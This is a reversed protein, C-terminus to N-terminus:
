CRTSKTQHVYGRFCILFNCSRAVSRFGRRVCTPGREPPRPPCLNPRAGFTTAVFARSPFSTRASTPAVSARSPFSTHASTPAMSAPAFDQCLKLFQLRQVHTIEIASMSYIWAWLRILNHGSGGLGFASPKNHKAFIVLM